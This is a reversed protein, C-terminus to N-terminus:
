FDGRFKAAPFKVQKSIEEIRVVHRKTGGEIMQTGLTDAAKMFHDRSQLREADMKLIAIEVMQVSLRRQASPMERLHEDLGLLRGAHALRELAPEAIMAAGGHRLRTQRHGV